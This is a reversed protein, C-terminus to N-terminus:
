LGHRGAPRAGEDAEQAAIVFRQAIQALAKIGGFLNFPQLKDHVLSPDADAVTQNGRARLFNGFLGACGGGGDLQAVAGNQGAFGLLQEAGGGRQNEVRQFVKGANVVAPVQDGGREDLRHLRELHVVEAGLIRPQVNVFRQDRQRDVGGPVFVGCFSQNAELLQLARVRVARHNQRRRVGGHEAAEADIQGGFRIVFVIIQIM